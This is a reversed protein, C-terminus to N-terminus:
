SDGGRRPRPSPVPLITGERPGEVPLPATSTINGSPNADFENVEERPLDLRFDSHDLVWNSDATHARKAAHINCSEAPRLSATTALQETDSCGPTALRGSQRCVVVTVSNEQSKLPGFWEPHKERAHQMFTIWAPLAASGGTFDKSDGMSAKPDFAVYVGVVLGSSYGIFWADTSGDTTGTKGALPCDMAQSARRGTGEKVVAIMAETMGAAVASSVAQRRVPEHRYVVFNNHDTIEEVCYPEIYVGDNAFAGYAAVLELPVVEAVGLALTLYVDRLNRIGLRESLDRVVEYSATRARHTTSGAGLRRLLDITALNHSKALAEKFTVMGHTRQNYNQPRWIKNRSLPISIPEDRLLTRLTMGQELGAAFIIPKFASGPQRAAQVARNWNGAVPEDIDYGGVLAKVKGTAVEVAILCGQLHIEEERRFRWGEPDEKYARVKLYYGPKLVGFEALWSDGAKIWSMPPAPDVDVVQVQAMEGSVDLIKARYVAGDQLRKPPAELDFRYYHRPNKRRIQELSKIHERLIRQGAAQLDLDVTTKVNFAQSRIEEWTKPIAARNRGSERHWDAAGGTSPLCHEQLWRRTYDVFYAADRNTEEANEKRQVLRIPEANAAEYEQQSIMNEALMRGLVARRRMLACEMCVYPNEKSPRKLLGVLMAAEALNVERASKGLYFQAAQEFGNRNFGLSVQNIYIELIEDKSYLREIELALLMDIFKRKISKHRQTIGLNRPLQMTITSAGQGFRGSFANDRLARALGIVDIGFHEYFRRDESALLADILVPSVEKISIVERRGEDPDFLESLLTGDPAYIKSIRSPRYRELQELGPLDNIFSGATSLIAGLAGFFLIACLTFTTWFFSIRRRRRRKTSPPKRAPLEDSPTDRLVWDSDEFQHRSLKRM